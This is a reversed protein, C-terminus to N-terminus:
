FKFLEAALLHTHTHIMEPLLLNKRTQLQLQLHIVPPCFLGTSSQGVFSKITDQPYPTQDVWCAQVADTGKGKGFGPKCANEPLSSYLLVHGAAVHEGASHMCNHCVHEYVTHSAIQSTGHPFFPFDSSLM